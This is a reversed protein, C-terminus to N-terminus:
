QKEVAAITVRIGRLTVHTRVNDSTNCTIYPEKDKSIKRDAGVTTQENCVNKLARKEMRRENGDAVNM